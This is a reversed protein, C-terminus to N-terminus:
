LARGAQRNIRRHMRDILWDSLSAPLWRLLRVRFASSRPFAYFAWRKRIAKLIHRAADEVEMLAPMPADVKQTMPTRVWGPCVTTVAIGCPKLEVRISELLANLGSKSACYGAMQPLGRFSALSSIAALHGQGRALMDPLVAGISNVVGLLNVRIVSEIDQAQYHLASTEIGIGACAILLNISGLQGRLHAVATELASRDTVDAPAWACPKGGLESALSGLDEARLDVAAVSAGEAAVAQALQRGLGSAAGTILVVQRAFSSM